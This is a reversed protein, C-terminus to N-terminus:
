DLFLYAGGIEFDEGFLPKGDNALYVIQSYYYLNHLVRTTLCGAQTLIYLAVDIVNVM